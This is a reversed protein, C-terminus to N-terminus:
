KNEVKHGTHDQKEGEAVSLVDANGSCPPRSRLHPAWPGGSASGGKVEPAGQTEGAAGTVEYSLEREDSVM